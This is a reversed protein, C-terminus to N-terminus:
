CRARFGAHAGISGNRRTRRERVDGDSARRSWGFQAGIASWLEDLVSRSRDLSMSFPLLSANEARSSWPAKPDTLFLPSSSMQLCVVLFEFVWGTGPMVSFASSATSSSLLSSPSDVASCLPRSDAMTVRANLRVVDLDLQFGPGGGSPPKCAHVAPSNHRTEEAVAAMLRTLPWPHQHTCTSHTWRTMM